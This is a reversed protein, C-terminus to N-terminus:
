EFCIKSNRHLFKLCRYGCNTQNIKQDPNRNYFIENNKNSFYKIIEILRTLGFSDYYLVLNDKKVACVWHTGKNFQSDLNFIITENKGPKTDGLADKRYIGKFYPIKLIKVYSLLEDEHLARQLKHITDM